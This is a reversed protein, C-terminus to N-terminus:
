IQKDLVTLPKGQMIKGSPAYTAPEPGSYLKLLQNFVRLSHTMMYRNLKVMDLMGTAEEKLNQRLVTLEDRIGAPAHSILISLGAGEPLKLVRALEAEIGGRQKDYRAMDAAARNQGPSLAILAPLDNARLAENQQVSIESLVEVTDRQLYLLELLENFLNEM